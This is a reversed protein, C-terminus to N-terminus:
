LTRTQIIPRRTRARVIRNAKRGRARGEGTVLLEVLVFLRIIITAATINLLIYVYLNEFSASSSDTAMRVAVAARSSMHLGLEISVSAFWM